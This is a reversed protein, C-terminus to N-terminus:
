ALPLRRWLRRAAVGAAILVMLLPLGIVVFPFQGIPEYQDSRDFPDWDLQWLADGTFASIVLVWAWGVARLRGEVFGTAFLLVITAGLGAAALTEDDAFVFVGSVFLSVVLVTKAVGVRTPAGGRILDTYVAAPLLALTVGLVVTGIVRSEAAVAFAVFVFPTMWMTMVGPSGNSGGIPSRPGMGEPLTGTQPSRAMGHSVTAGLRPLRTFQRAVAGFQGEVGAAAM